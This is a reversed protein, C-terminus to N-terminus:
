PKIRRPDEPKVLTILVCEFKRAAYCDPDKMLKGWIELAVKYPYRLEIDKLTSVFMQEQILM